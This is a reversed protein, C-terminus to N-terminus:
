DAESDIFQEDLAKSVLDKDEKGIAVRRRIVGDRIAYDHPAETGHRKQYAAVIAAEVKKWDSEGFYRAYGLEAGLHMYSVTPGRGSALADTALQEIAVGAARTRAAFKTDDIEKAFGHRKMVTYVCEDCRMTDILLQMRSVADSCTEQLSRKRSAM